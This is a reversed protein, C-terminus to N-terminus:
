KGNSKYALLSLEDEVERLRLRLQSREKELVLIKPDVLLDVNTLKTQCAKKSIRGGRGWSFFGKLNLAYEVVNKYTGNVVELKPESHPGGGDANHDEGFITWTGQEESSYNGLLRVRANKNKSM